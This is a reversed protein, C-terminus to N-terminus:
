PKPSAARSKELQDLWPKWDMPGSDFRKKLNGLVAVWVRDFYAYAKDWEGGDGWGVHHLSVRTAKDGQPEFRVIVLTRQQRV